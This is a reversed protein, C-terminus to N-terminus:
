RIIIRYCIRELLIFRYTRPDNWWDFKINKSTGETTHVFENDRVITTYNSLVDDRSRLRFIGLEFLIHFFLEIARTVDFGLISGAGTYRGHWNDTGM